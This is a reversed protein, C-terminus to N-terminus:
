NSDSSIGAVAQINAWEDCVKKALAAIFSHADQEKGFGNTMIALVLADGNPPYVIGV